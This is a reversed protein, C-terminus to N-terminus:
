KQTCILLDTEDPQTTFHGLRLWNPQMRELLEPQRGLARAQHMAWDGWADIM